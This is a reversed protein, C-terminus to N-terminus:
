VCCSLFSSSHLLIMERVPGALVAAFVGLVMGAAIVALIVSGYQRIIEQM